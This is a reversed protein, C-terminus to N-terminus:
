HAFPPLSGGVHCSSAPLVGAAPASVAAARSRHLRATSAHDEVVATAVASTILSPSHM